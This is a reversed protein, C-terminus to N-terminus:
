IKTDADEEKKKRKNNMYCTICFPNGKNIKIFQNCVNCKLIFGETKYRSNGM